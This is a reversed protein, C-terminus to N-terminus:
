VVPGLAMFKDGAVRQSTPPVQQEKEEANQGTVVGGGSEM